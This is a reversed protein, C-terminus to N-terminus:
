VDDRCMMEVCRGEEGEVKRKKRELGGADGGGGGGGVMKGRRQGSKGGELLM